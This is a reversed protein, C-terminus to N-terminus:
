IRFRELRGAGVLGLSLTSVTSPPEMRALKVLTVEGPLCGVMKRNKARQGVEVGSYDAVLVRIRLVKGSM